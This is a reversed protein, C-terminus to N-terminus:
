LLKYIEHYNFQHTAQRVGPGASASYIELMVPFLLQTLEATLKKKEDLSYSSIAINVNIAGARRPLSQYPVFWHQPNTVIQHTDPDASGYRQCVSRSGSWSGVGSGVGKKPSKLSAFCNRKKRWIKIRIVETKLFSKLGSGWCQYLCYVLYRISGCITNLWEVCTLLSVTITLSQPRFLQSRFSRTETWVSIPIAKNQSYIRYRDAEEADQIGSLQSTLM